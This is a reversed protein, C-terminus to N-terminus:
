CIRGHHRLRAEDDLKMVADFDWNVAEVMALESVLQEDAANALDHESHSLHILRRQESRSTSASTM